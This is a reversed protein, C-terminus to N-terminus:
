RLRARLEYGRGELYNDYLFMGEDSFAANYAIKTYFNIETVKERKGSSKAFEINAWGYMRQKLSRKLRFEGGLEQLARENASEIMEELEGRRIDVEELADAYNDNGVTSRFAWILANSM